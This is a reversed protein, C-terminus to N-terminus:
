AVRYSQPEGGFLSDDNSVLLGKEICNRAVRGHVGIGHQAHHRPCLPITESHPAKRSQSKGGTIHHVIAPARCVICGLSAVRALHEKDAKKM